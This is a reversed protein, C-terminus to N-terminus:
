LDRIKEAAVSGLASGWLDAEAAARERMALAGAKWAAWEAQGHKCASAPTKTEALHWAEFEERMTM